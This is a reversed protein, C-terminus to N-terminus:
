GYFKQSDVKSEAEEVRRKLEEFERKMTQSIDKISLIGLILFIINSIVFTFPLWNEVELRYKDTLWFFSMLTSAMYGFFTIGAGWSLYTPFTQRIEIKQLIAKLEILEDASIRTNTEHIRAKLEQLEESIEEARYGFFRRSLPIILAYVALVLGAGTISAQLLALVLSDNLMSM